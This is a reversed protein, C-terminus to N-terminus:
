PTILRYVVNGQIVKEVKYHSKIFDFVKELNSARGKVLGKGAGIQNQRIAPDISLIDDPAVLYADVIIEPPNSTLDQYFGDELRPTIQSPLYEPYWLYASPADRRSMYNIGSQVWDLVKDNPSTNDRVYSSVLNIDEVGHGRDFLLSKITSSYEGVTSYGLVLALLSVITLPLIKSNLFAILKESFLVPAAVYYLYGCLAAVAPLWNIFYHTYGRGSLASMLIEVPWLIILLIMFPDFKKIKLMRFVFVVAAGYGILAIWAVMGLYQFGPILSSLIKTHDGIYSFNYLIAANWSKILIGQKWLFIAVCLLAAGGGALM